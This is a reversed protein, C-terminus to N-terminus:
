NQKIKRKSISMILDIFLFVIIIILTFIFIYSISNSFFISCLLTIVGASIAGGICISLFSYNLNLNSLGAILSGTWVGTLPIPVAVFGALALYKKLQSTNNDIITSKNSYKNFFSSSIFGASKRKIKRLIIMIFYSPIISGVFALLFTPFPSMANNGWIATNMALPIAVKSELAPCMAILITALWICNEFNNAFFDTIFNM